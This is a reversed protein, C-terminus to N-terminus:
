EGQRVYVAPRVYKFQHATATLSESHGVFLHGGPELLDYYRNVLTQQTPKDFYIMVNRCFIANFPGKMPWSEMLNLRAFRIMQKINTRAMALEASDSRAVEFYKAALHKPVDALNDQTYVGNKAKELVQSSIDTALIRVDRRDIDPIEERLVMALTYPEEGSSCGACWFRLSGGRGVLGPLVSERLYDFHQSERFFSTKNTTLSDVMVLMESGGRESEVYRIYEDFSVIGLTRLRKALRAKVLEEKGFHLNVGSTTYMLRSIHDFQKKSLELTLLEGSM